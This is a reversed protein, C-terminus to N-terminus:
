QDELFWKAVTEEIKSISLPYRRSEWTIILNVDPIIGVSEYDTLKRANRLNYGEDDIRGFHEWYYTEGTKPHRITFDPHYVIGNIEYDEEYRYPVSKKYMETAIQAESKSRFLRGGPGQHILSEPHRGTSPYDAEAWKQLREDRIQFLPRVLEELHPKKALAEGVRDTKNRHRLYMDIARKEKRADKLMLELIIKRALKRIFEIRGVRIYKRNGNLVHYHNYGKGKARKQFRLRGKPPKALESEITAIQSALRADEKEMIDPYNM